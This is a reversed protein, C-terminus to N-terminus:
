VAHKVKRIPKRDGWGMVTQRRSKIVYAYVEKRGYPVRWYHVTAEDEPFCGIYTLQAATLSDAEGDSEGLERRLYRPLEREITASLGTIGFWPATERVPKKRGIYPSIIRGSPLIEFYPGQRSEGDPDVFVRQVAIEVGGEDGPGRFIIFQLEALERPPKLPTRSPLKSLEDFPRQALLKLQADQWKDAANLLRRYRTEPM